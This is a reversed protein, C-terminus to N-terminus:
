IFGLWLENAEIISAGFTAFNGATIFNDFFITNKDTIKKSPDVPYGVLFSFRMDAM